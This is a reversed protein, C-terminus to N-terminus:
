APRKEAVADTVSIGGVNPPSTAEVKKAQHHHSPPPHERKARATRAADPAHAGRTQSLELEDDDITTLLM